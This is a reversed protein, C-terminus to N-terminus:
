IYMKLILVTGIFLRIKKYGMRGILSITKMEYFLTLIYTRYKIHVLLDLICAIVLLTSLIEYFPKKYVPGLNEDGKWFTIGPM